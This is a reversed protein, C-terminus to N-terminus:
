NPTVTSVMARQFCRSETSSREWVGCRRCVVKLRSCSARDDQDQALGKAQRQIVKQGHDVFEDMGGDGTRRQVAHELPMTNGRAFRHADVLGLDFGELGILGAKDMHVHLVQGLHGVLVLPAVEEDRYIPGGATDEHGNIGGLRRGVGLVEQFGQGLGRREMNLGDQGVVALLEGVAEDGRTLAGGGTLMGEVLQTGFQLDLMAQCAGFPGLGIAHHFTEIPADGIQQARVVEAGALLQLGREQAIGPKVVVMQRLLSQTMDAGHM